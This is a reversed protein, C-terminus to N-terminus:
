QAKTLAAYTNIKNTGRLTKTMNTNDVVYRVSLNFTFNSAKADSLSLLRLKLSNQMESNAIVALSFKSAKNNAPYTSQPAITLQSSGNKSSLTYVNGNVSFALDKIEIFEDTRNEFHLGDGRLWVKLQKDEMNLTPTLTFDLGTFAMPVVIPAYTLIQNKPCETIKVRHKADLLQESLECKPQVTLPEEAMKSFRAQQEAEWSPFETLSVPYNKIFDNNKINNVSSFEIFKKTTEYGVNGNRYENKFSSSFVSPMLGNTNDNLLFNINAGSASDIWKKNTTDIDSKLKKTSSNIATLLKDLNTDSVAKEIEKKNLYREDGIMAAQAVLTLGGTFVAMLASTAVTNVVSGNPDSDTMFASDCINTKKSRDLKYNKDFGYPLLGNCLILGDNKKLNINFYPEFEWGGDSAIRVLLSEEKPNDINRKGNISIIKWSEEEKKLVVDYLYDNSKRLVYYNNSTKEQSPAANQAFTVMPALYLTATALSLLKRIFM